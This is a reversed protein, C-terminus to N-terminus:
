EKIYLPGYSRQTRKYVLSLVCPVVALLREGCGDDAFFWRKEGIKCLAAACESAHSARVNASQFTNKRGCM